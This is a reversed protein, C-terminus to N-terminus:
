SFLIKKFYKLLNLNIPKDTLLNIKRNQLWHIFNQEDFHYDMRLEFSQKGHFGCPAFDPIVEVV